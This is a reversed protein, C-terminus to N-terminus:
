LICLNNTLINNEAMENRIEWRKYRSHQNKDWWIKYLNVM